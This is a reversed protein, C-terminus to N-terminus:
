DHIQKAAQTSKWSRSNFCILAPPVERAFLRREIGGMPMGLTFAQRAPRIARRM